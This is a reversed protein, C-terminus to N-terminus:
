ARRIGFPLRVSLALLETSHLALEIFLGIFIQNSPVAQPYIIMFISHIFIPQYITM